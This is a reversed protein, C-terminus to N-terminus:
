IQYNSTSINREQIYMSRILSLSAGWFLFILARLSIAYVTSSISMFLQAFLLATFIANIEILLKKSRIFVAYKSKERFISYLIFFWFLAGIVGSGNLMIMYDTHLMRNTKYYLRDNFPESGFLKFILTEDKWTNFVLNIESYRAEKEIKDEELTLQDERANLRILFTNYLSPFIIIFTLILLSGFFLIKIYRSSIGIKYGYIILSLAASILVSRKIGIIAVVLATIYLISLLKRKSPFLYLSIPAFLVLVFIEKTINVSGSGFYFTNLAYDSTGLNFLNSIIINIIYLILILIFIKFLKKFKELSNFYYYGVPFMLVGLTYKIIGNLSFVIDTSFILLIFLYIISNLIVISPNNKPYRFLVFPILFTILIFARATGTNLDSNFYNATNAAITNIIPILLVFFNIRNTNNM